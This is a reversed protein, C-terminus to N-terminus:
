AIPGFTREPRRLTLLLRLRVERHQHPESRRRDRGMAPLARRPELRLGLGFCLGPSKEGPM